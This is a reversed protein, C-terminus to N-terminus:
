ITYLYTYLRLSELAGHRNDSLSRYSACWGAATEDGIEVAIRVCQSITFLEPIDDGRRPGLYKSTLCRALNASRASQKAGGAETEKILWM